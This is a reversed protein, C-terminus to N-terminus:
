ELAIVNDKAFKSRREYDTDLCPKCKKFGSRINKYNVVVPKGKQSQKLKFGSAKVAM